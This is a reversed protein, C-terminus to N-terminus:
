FYHQVPLDWLSSKNTEWVGQNLQVAAQQEPDTLHLRQQQVRASAKAWM